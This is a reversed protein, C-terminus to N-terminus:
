LRSSDIFNNRIITNEACLICIGGEVGGGCECKISSSNELITVYIIIKNNRQNLNPPNKKKKWICFGNLKLVTPKLRTRIM